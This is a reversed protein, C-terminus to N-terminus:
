GNLVDIDDQFREAQEVVKKGYVNTCTYRNWNGGCYYKAAAIRENTAAGADKLYLATAVFADRNDWPSSPNSGTIAGIKDKGHNYSWTGNKNPSCNETVSNVYGGYCAWTSPIFQAPGMAGGYAGDANACSVKLVESEVNKELGLTRVIDLFVPIDRTPHMATKYSCQGVNKGLASERDLVALILAARVGTAKEAVRALEYAKEFNLEGGGILQFIQKRIEAATKKKEELIKKYESEKGKTEKLLQNKEEQTKQIGQRQQDQYDKLAQIDSRETALTEKQVILQERSDIIKQLAVRLNDQVLVLGSLDSFFDSINPNKLMVEVLGKNSSEYLEQLLTSLSAKNKEIESQTQYIQGQTEGIQKDLKSLNLTVAKIQLNLKAVQAELRKVELSLSTGQKKYQEITTETEAIQKEYEALQAELMAREEQSGQAIQAGGSTPATVSGLVFCATILFPLCVAAFSKLPFIVPKKYNLNLLHRNKNGFDESKKTIDVFVRPKM